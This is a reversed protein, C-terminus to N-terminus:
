ITKAQRALDASIYGREILATAFRDFNEALQEGSDEDPELRVLTRTMRAATGAVSGTGARWSRWGSRQSPRTRSLSRFASSTPESRRGSGTGPAAVPGSVRAGLSKLYVFCLKEVFAVGELMARYREVENEPTGL